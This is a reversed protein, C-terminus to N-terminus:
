GDNGGKEIPLAFIAAPEVQPDAALDLRRLMAFHAAAQAALRIAERSELDVGAAAAIATLDSPTPASAREGSVPDTM